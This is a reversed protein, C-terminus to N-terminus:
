IFPITTTLLFYRSIDNQTIHGGAQRQQEFMYGLGDPIITNETAPSLEDLRWEFEDFFAFLRAFAEDPIHIGINDRELEHVGFLDSPMYPVNGLAGVLEPSREQKSLGEYFFRQIFSRYFNEPGQREQTIRLRNTLYQLDNDILGKYQLLYVFM